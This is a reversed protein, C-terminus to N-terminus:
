PAAPAGAAREADALIRRAAADTPKLRVADRLHRLADDRKGSKLLLEGLRRHADAHDPRADLTARFARTARDVDGTQAASHGLAYQADASKPDAAVSREFATIAEAHKGQAALAAGLNYQVRPADPTRQAAQRLYREATAHDRSMHHALGLLFLARDSDPYDALTRELLPLADRVRGGRMLSMAVSLNHKRGVRAQEVEAQYPDPWPPDDPLRRAAELHARAAAADGARLRLEALLLTASKRAHLSQAARTADAEAAATDSRAAALRARGLLGRAHDPRARLLRDFEQGAEEYRNRALLAEALRVRPTDPRDGSLEAARRLWPIAADPDRLALATGVFYAWRPEQPDLRHAQRFCNESTTSEAGHTLLVIGLRGWAASSKPDRAVAQRAAEIAREVAPDPDTVGRRDLPPPETLVLIDSVVPSSFDNARNSRNTSIFLAAGIGLSAAVLCAIM